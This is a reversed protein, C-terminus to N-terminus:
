QMSTLFEPYYKQMLNETKKVSKKVEKKKCFFSIVWGLFVLPSICLLFAFLCPILVTVPLILSIILTKNKM